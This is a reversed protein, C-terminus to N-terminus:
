KPTVGNVTATTEHTPEHDMADPDTPKTKEDKGEKDKSSGTPLQHQEAQVPRITPTNSGEVEKEKTEEERKTGTPVTAFQNTQLIPSPGEDGSDLDMQVDEMDDDSEEQNHHIGNGNSLIAVDKTEKPEKTEKTETREQQKLESGGMEGWIKRVLQEINGREGKIMDLLAKEVNDYVESREVAGELLSAAKGRERHRLGPDRALEKATITELAELLTAHAPSSLLRQFLEKRLADFHGKKKFATRLDEADPDESGGKGHHSDSYGNTMRSASNNPPSM